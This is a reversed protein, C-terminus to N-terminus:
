DNIHWRKNEHRIFGEEVMMDLVPRIKAYGKPNRYGINILISSTSIPGNALVEKFVIRHFESERHINSKRLYYQSGVKVVDGKSHMYNLINKAIPRWHGNNKGMSLLIGTMTEGGESSELVEYIRNMLIGKRERKKYSEGLDWIQVSMAKKKKHTPPQLVRREQKPAITELYSLIAEASIGLEEATDEAFGERIAPSSLMSNLQQKPLTNLYSQLEEM